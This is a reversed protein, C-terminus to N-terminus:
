REDPKAELVFVKDDGWALAEAQGDLLEATQKSVSDVIQYNDTM